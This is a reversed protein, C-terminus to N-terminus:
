WKQLILNLDLSHFSSQDIWKDDVQQPVESVPIKLLVALAERFDLQHKKSLRNFEVRLSMLRNVKQECTERDALNTILPFVTVVGWISCM